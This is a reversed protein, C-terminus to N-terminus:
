GSEDLAVYPAIAASCGSTRGPSPIPTTAATISPKAKANILACAWGPRNTALTSRTTTTACGASQHATTACGSSSVSSVTPGSAVSSSAPDSTLTLSIGTTRLNQVNGCTSGASLGGPLQETVPRGHSVVQSSRPTRTVGHVPVARTTTDVLSLWTTSGKRETPILVSARRLTACSASRTSTSGTSRANTATTAPDTACRSRDSATQQRRLVGLAALQASPVSTRAPQPHGRHDDGLIPRWGGNGRHRQGLDRYSRGRDAPDARPGAALGAPSGAPLPAPSRTTVKPILTM